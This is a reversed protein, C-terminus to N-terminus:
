HSAATTAIAAAPPASEILQNIARRLEEETIPKHLLGLGHDTTFKLAEPSIEGTTILAPFHAFRRMLRLALEAGNEEAGLRLDTILLDPTGHTEFLQVAAEPSAASRADAGWLKLLQTMSKQIDIEDDVVYIKRGSLSVVRERTPEDKRLPGHSEVLQSLRITFTTGVGVESEVSISAGSLECLRQVIALGLGVGKSRDRGPNDLQYFEEFIRSLEGSPIGKGTDAVTMVASPPSTSPDLSAAVTISGRETYKIANDLLNRAIRGLAVPDGVVSVPSLCQNLTLGKESAPREFEACVSRLLQDLSTPEREITYHGSSLRSLDLLGHLLSGLSRVIQDINSGVERMADPPPNAALVASYVSLAHLPQRLDHSAAALVRARALASQEAQTMAARVDRNRQELDRVLRDREHRIMISRLLLQDGEAAVIFILACYLTTLIGTPAAQQPHLAMWTGVAPVVIGLSYAIAMYRSSQSVAVGAAPMIMVIIGLLAQDLIPLRPLFLVASLGVALGALGAHIVFIRHTRQPDIDHGRRLVGRAYHARMTEVGITLGAWGIFVPAPVFPYVFIGISIALVSEIWPMRQLVRAVLGCMEVLMEHDPTLATTSQAAADDGQM